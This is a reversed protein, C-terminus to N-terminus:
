RGISRTRWSPRIPATMKQDCCAVRVANSLRRDKREPESKWFRRRNRRVYVTRFSSLRSNSVARPSSDPRVLGDSRRLRCRDYQAAVSDMSRHRRESVSTPETHKFRDVNAYLRLVRVHEAPTGFFKRQVEAINDMDFLKPKWTPSSAILVLARQRGRVQRDSRISRGYQWPNEFKEPWNQGAGPRQLHREQLMAAQFSRASRMCRTSGAALRIWRGRLHLRCSLIAQVTRTVRVSICQAFPMAGSRVV